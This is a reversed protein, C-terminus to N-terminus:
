LQDQLFAENVQQQNLQNQAANRVEGSFQVPVATIGREAVTGLFQLDPLSEEYNDMPIWCYLLVADHLSENFSVLGEGSPVQMSGPITLVPIEAVTHQEQSNEANDACGATLILSVTLILMATKM